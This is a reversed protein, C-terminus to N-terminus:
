KHSKIKNEDQGIFVSLKFKDACHHFIINDASFSIGSFIKM